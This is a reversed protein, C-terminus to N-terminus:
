SPQDTQQAPTPPPQEEAENTKGDRIADLAAQLEAAKRMLPEAKAESAKVTLNRALDNIKREVAYADNMMQQWEKLEESSVMVLAGGLDPVKFRSYVTETYRERYAQEVIAYVERQSRVLSEPTIELDPHAERFAQGVPHEHLTEGWQELERAHAEYIEAREIPARADFFDRSYLPVEPFDKEFQSRAEEEASMWNGRNEAWSQGAAEREAVQDARKFFRHPPPRKAGTLETYKQRSEDIAENFNLIERNAAAKKRAPDGADHMAWALPEAEEIDPLSESAVIREALTGTETSGAPPEFVMAEVAPSGIAPPATGQPPIQPPHEHGDPEPMTTGKEDKNKNKSDTVFM